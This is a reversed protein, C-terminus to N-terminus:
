ATAQKPQSAQQENMRMMLVNTVVELNGRREMILSEINSMNKTLYEGKRDFFQKAADITVTAFYGTGIDVTVKDCDELEGNAYVSETLPVLMGSGNKKQEKLVKLSEISDEYRHQAIKLQQYSSTLHKIEQELQQSVAELQPLSMSAVNKGEDKSM